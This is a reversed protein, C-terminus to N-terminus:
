EDIIPDLDTDDELLSEVDIDPRDGPELAPLDGVTMTPSGFLGQKPEVGSFTGACAPCEPRTLLAVDVTEGCEECNASRVGHRNAQAKLEDVAAEKEARGALTRVATRMEVVARALTDLKASVDDTTETLYELVEEYNEFGADLRERATALRDDLDDLDAALDAVDHEVDSVRDAAEAADERLEPHDHDADAKGDIERKVQVVRRRVDAIKEEVDSDLDDLDAALDAVDDESAPSEDGNTVAQYTAMLRRVFEDRSLGLASAREDIWSATAEPETRPSSWDEASDGAM